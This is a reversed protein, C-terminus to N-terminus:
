RFGIVDGPKLFNHTDVEGDQDKDPGCVVGWDRSLAPDLSDSTVSLVDEGLESEANEKLNPKSFGPQPSLPPRTPGENQWEQWLRLHERIGVEQVSPIQPTIDSGTHLSSGSM